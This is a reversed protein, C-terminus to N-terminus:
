RGAKRGGHAQHWARLEDRTLYGDKNTDIEAFHKAIRPLAADAEAKSIRGDGDKDAAKLRSQMKQARDGQAQGSGPEAYASGAALAGTLVLATMQLATKM